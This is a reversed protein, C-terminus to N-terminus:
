KSGILFHEESSHWYTGHDDTVLELERIDPAAIYDKDGVVPLADGLNYEQIARVIKVMANRERKDLRRTELFACCQEHVFHGVQKRFPLKKFRAISLPPM